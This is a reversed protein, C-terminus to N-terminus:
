SEMSKRKKQPCGFIVILIEGFRIRRTVQTILWYAFLELRQESCGNWQGNWMAPLGRREVLFKTFWLTLIRFHSDSEEQAQPSYFPVWAPLWASVTPLLM